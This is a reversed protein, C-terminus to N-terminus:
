YAGCYILILLKIKQSQPKRKMVLELSIMWCDVYIPTMLKGSLDFTAAVMLLRLWEALQQLVLVSKM